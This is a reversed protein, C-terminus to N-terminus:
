CTAITENDPSVAVARVWGDHAEVARLPKPADAEVPWWLLRGHYDGSLLWGPRPAFALGRVWSEPAAFASKKGTSVEFRQITFDQASAFLFRGTPDFRCGVLPSGHKLEKLPRTQRPDFGIKSVGAAGQDRRGQPRGDPDPPQGPLLEEEPGPGPRPLLHPVPARREGRPRRRRHRQRQDQRGRGRGCH